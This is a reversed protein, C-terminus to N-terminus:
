SLKLTLSGINAQYPLLAAKWTGGVPTKLSCTTNGVIGNNCQAYASSGGPEYFVLFVEGPSGDNTFNFHTVTFTVTKNAKAAFTYGAHQGAFKITTTVPTGPKLAKTPVDNAFTLTLSGISAQYPVLTVKWTGGVPATFNCYTNGVVGNNCQTYASSSGPEYFYVFVEGSSGANHFNFHTVDFTVNKNATASFTYKVQQGHKSVTAKVPKGSTLKGATV